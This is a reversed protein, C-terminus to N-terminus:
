GGRSLCGKFPNMFSNDTVSLIWEMSKLFQETKKYGGCAAWQMATDGREDKANVDAGKCILIACTQIHKFSAAFHLPTWGSPNKAAIDAGANLLQMIRANDGTRAAVLLADNLLMQKETASAPNESPMIDIITKIPKKAPANIPLPKM